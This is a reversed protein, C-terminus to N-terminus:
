SNWLIAEGLDEELRSLEAEELVSSDDRDYLSFVGSSFESESLLANRDDDWEGISGGREVFGTTFEFRAIVGNGDLDWAEYDSGYQENGWLSDQSLATEHTEAESSDIQDIADGEFGSFVGASFEQEDISGDDDVDWLEFLEREKIAQQFETQSLTGDQAGAQLGAEDAAAPVSLALASIAALITLQPKM